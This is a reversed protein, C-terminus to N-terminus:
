FILSQSLKELMRPMPIMFIAENMYKSFASTKDNHLNKTFTSVGSKTETFLKFRQEAPKQKFNHWRLDQQHDHIRQRKIFIRPLKKM